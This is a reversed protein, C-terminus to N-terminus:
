EESDGEDAFKYGVGWVTLIMKPNEPDEEVKARLRNIHSDITRDYGSYTYDWINELLYKRSYVRGPHSAFLQLLEFEKPTLDVFKGNLTVERRGPVVKLAGRVIPAQEGEENEKAKAKMRRLVSKLRAELERLSFPKTIYDDAGMELGLVKDVVDDKATLILIPLSPNRERIHRCVSFGDTKPLMVDLILADPREESAAKIGSEGDSVTVVDYGVHKFYDGIMRQIHLDDEVVLLKGQALPSVLSAPSPSILPESIPEISLETQPM